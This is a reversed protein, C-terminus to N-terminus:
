PCAGGVPAAYGNLCCPALDAGELTTYELSVADASLTVVKYGCGGEPEDCGGDCGASCRDTGPEDECKATGAVTHLTFGGDTVETTTHTHGCLVTLVGSQTFLALLRTRVEAPWNFYQTPEDTNVLFPPHHMVPLIHGGRSKAAALTTELWAWQEDAEARLGPLAPFSHTPGDGWERRGDSAAILMESNIMVFTAHQTEFSHYDLGFNERYHERQADFELVTAAGPNM